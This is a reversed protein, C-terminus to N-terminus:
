GLPSIKVRTKGNFAEHTQMKVNKCEHIWGNENM